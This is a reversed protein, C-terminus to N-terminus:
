DFFCFLLCREADTGKNNQNKNRNMWREELCVFKRDVKGAKKEKGDMQGDKTVISRKRGVWVDKEATRGEEQNEQRAKEGASMEEKRDMRDEQDNIGEKKREELWDVKKAIGGDKRDMQKKREMYRKKKSKREGKGKRGEGGGERALCGAKGRYEGAVSGATQTENTDQVAGISILEKMILMYGDEQGSGKWADM